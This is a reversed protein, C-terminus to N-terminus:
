IKKALLFMSQISLTARENPSEMASTGSVAKQSLQSNWTLILRSLVERIIPPKVAIGTTYIRILLDEQPLLTVPLNFDVELDPLPLCDWYSDCGGAKLKTGGKNIKLGKVVTKVDVLDSACSLHCQPKLEKQGQELKSFM